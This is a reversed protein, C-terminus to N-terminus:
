LTSSYFHTDLLIYLMANAMLDKIDMGHDLDIIWM